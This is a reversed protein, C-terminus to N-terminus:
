VRAAEVPLRPKRRFLSGTNRRMYGLARRRRCEVCSMVIVVAALAASGGAVGAIVRPDDECCKEEASACCSQACDADDYADETLVWDGWKKADKRRGFPCGGAYLRGNAEDCLECAQTTLVLCAGLLTRMRPCGVPPRPSGSCSHESNTCLFVLSGCSQQQRAHEASASSGARLLGARVFLMRAFIM